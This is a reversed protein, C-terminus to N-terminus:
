KTPNNYLQLILYDKYFTGPVYQASLNYKTNSMIIIIIIIITIIIDTNNGDNNFTWTLM